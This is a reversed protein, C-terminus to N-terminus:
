KQKSKCDESSAFQTKCLKGLQEELMQLDCAHMTTCHFPLSSKVNGHSFSFKFREV